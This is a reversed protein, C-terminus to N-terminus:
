RLEAELTLKESEGLTAHWLRAQKDSLELQNFTWWVDYVMRLDEVAYIEGARM